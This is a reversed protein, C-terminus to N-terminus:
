SWTKISKRLEKVERNPRDRREEETKSSEKVVTILEDLKRTIHKTNERVADVVKRDERLVQVPPQHAITRSKATSDNTAFGSSSLAQGVFNLSSSLGDTILSKPIVVEGPELLAPVKDGLGKGLVKRVLGGSKYGQPEELLRLVDQVEREFREAINRRTQVDEVRSFWKDGGKAGRESYIARIIQEDSMGEHVRAHEFVRSAGTVGHQVATSWVAEQLAQTRNAVDIGTNRRIKAKAPIYHSEEIFSHQLREFKDPDEYALANWSEELSFPEDNRLLQGWTSDHRDVYDIFSEMTGEDRAIQYKGFYPGTINGVSAIDGGSEYKASIDGLMQYSSDPSISEGARTLSEDIKDQVYQSRNDVINPINERGSLPVDSSTSASDDPSSPVSPSSPSSSFSDPSYDSPSRNAQVENSEGGFLFDILPDFLSGGTDPTDVTDNPTPATIEEKDEGIFPLGELLGGLWGTFRSWSSRRKPTYPDDLFDAWDPLGKIDFLDRVMRSVTGSKEELETFGETWPLIFDEIFEVNHPTDIDVSMHAGTLGGGFLEPVKDLPTVLEPGAEGIEAFVRGRVLGGDALQVDPTTRERISRERKDDVTIDIDHDSDGFLNSFWRIASNDTILEVVGLFGEQIWEFGQQFAGTVTDWHRRLMYIAFIAAAGGAIIPALPTALGAAAGGLGAKGLIGAGIPKLMGGALAKGSLMASLTKFGTVVGGVAKVALGMAKAKFIQPMLLKIMVAYQLLDGFRMNMDAMLDTMARIPRINMAFTRFASTMNEILSQTHPSEDQIERHWNTHRDMEDSTLEMTELLDQYVLDGTYLDEALQDMGFMEALNHMAESSDSLEDLRKTSRLIFQEFEGEQLLQEAEQYPMGILNSLEALEARSEISGSLIIDFLESFDDMSQSGTARLGGLAFAMSSLQRELDDADKANRRIKPALNDFTEWAIEQVDIGERALAILQSSFGELVEDGREFDRMILSVQRASIDAVNKYVNELEMLMLSASDRQEETLNLGTEIVDLWSRMLDDHNYRMMGALGDFENVVHSYFLDRMERREQTFERWTLGMRDRITTEVERLGMVEEDLAGAITGQINASEVMGLIGLGGIDGSTALGSFGKSIRRMNQNASDSVNEFSEEGQESFKEWQEEKREFQEDMLEEYFTLHEPIEEEFFKKTPESMGENVFKETFYVSSDNINRELNSLDSTFSLEPSVMSEKDRARSRGMSGGAGRNTMQLRKMGRVLEELPSLLQTIAEATNQMSNSANQLAQAQADIM